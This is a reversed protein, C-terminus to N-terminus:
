YWCIVVIEILSAGCYQNINKEVHLYFKRKFRYVGNYYFFQPGFHYSIEKCEHENTPEINHGKDYLSLVHCQVNCPSQLM